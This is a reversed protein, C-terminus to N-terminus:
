EAAKQTILIEGIKLPNRKESIFVRLAREEGKNSLTTIELQNEKAMKKVEYWCGKYETDVGNYQRYTTDNNEMRCIGSINLGFMNPVVVTDVGGEADVDVLISPIITFVDGILDKQEREDDSCSSFGVSAGLLLTIYIFIYKM